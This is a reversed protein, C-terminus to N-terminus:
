CVHGGRGFLDGGLHGVGGEVVSGGVLAGAGLLRGGGLLLGDTCAGGLTPSEINSVERVRGVLPLQLFEELVVQHLHGRHRM